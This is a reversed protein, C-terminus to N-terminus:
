RSFRLQGGGGLYVPGVFRIPSAKLAKALDDKGEVKLMGVLARSWEPKFAADIRWVTGSTGKGLWSEQIPQEIRTSDGVARGNWTLRTDGIRLEYLENDTGPVKSVSSQAEGLKVKANAAAQSLGGGVAVFDLLVDRRAGSGQETAAVTWMGIMPRKRSGKGGFRRGGVTLADSYFLCLSSPIWSAFEPQGEIASRLASHLGEDQSAPLLRVKEYVGRRALGPEVLFRVCQGTSLGEITWVPGARRDSREQAVLPAAAGCWVAAALGLKM